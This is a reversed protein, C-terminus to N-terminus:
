GALSETCHAEDDIGANVIQAPGALLGEVVEFAWEGCVGAALLDIAVDRVARAAPGRM